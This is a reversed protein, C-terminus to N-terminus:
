LAALPNALNTLIQCRRLASLRDFGRHILAWRLHLIENQLEPQEWAWTSPRSRRRATRRNNWANARFYEILARQSSRLRRPLLDKIWQLACITPHRV